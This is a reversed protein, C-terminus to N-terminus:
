EAPPPPAYRADAPYMPAVQRVLARWASHQGMLRHKNEPDANPLEADLKSIAGLAYGYLLAVDDRSAEIMVAGDKQYREAKQEAEIRERLSGEPFAEILLAAMKKSIKLNGIKDTM